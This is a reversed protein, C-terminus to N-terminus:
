AVQEVTLITGGQAQVQEIAEIMTDAKVSFEEQVFRPVEVMAKINFTAIKKLKPEPKSLDVRKTPKVAVTSKRSKHFLRYGVGYVNKIQTNPPLVHSRRLYSVPRRASALVKKTKTTPYPYYLVKYLIDDHTVVHQTQLLSLLKESNTM